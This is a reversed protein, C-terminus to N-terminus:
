VAVPAARPRAALLRLPPMRGHEGRGAALAFEACREPSALLDELEGLSLGQRRAAREVRERLAAPVAPNASIDLTM